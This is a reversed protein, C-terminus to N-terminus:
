DASEPYTHRFVNLLEGDPMRTLGVSEFGLKALLRESADNGPTTIAYVTTFGLDSQGFAMAAKASELGYGRREYEPLFAFGIDPGPLSVRRVFGCMGIPLGAAKLVVAYLGYGNDAYSQRYRERIFTAADSESRVGRDGIYNIFSETNLLENIFAADTELIERLVLRDTEAIFGNVAASVM